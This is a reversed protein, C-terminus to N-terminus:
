GVLQTWDGGGYGRDGWAIMQSWGHSEVDTFNPHYQICGPEKSDLVSPIRFQCKIRFFIQFNCSTVEM